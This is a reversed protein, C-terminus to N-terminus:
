INTADLGLEISFTEIWWCYESSNILTSINMKMTPHSMREALTFFICYVLAHFFHCLRARTWTDPNFLMWCSTCHDRGRTRNVVSVYRAHFRARASVFHRASLTRFEKHASRLTKLSNRTNKFSARGSNEQRVFLSVSCPNLERANRVNIEYAQKFGVYTRVLASQFTKNANSYFFFFHFSHIWM